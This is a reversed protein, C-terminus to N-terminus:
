VSSGPECRMYLLHNYVREKFVKRNGTYSHTEIMNIDIIVGPMHAMLWMLERCPFMQTQSEILMNEM